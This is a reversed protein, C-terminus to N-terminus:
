PRRRAGPWDGSRILSQRGLWARGSADITRTDPNRARADDAGSDARRARSGDSRANVASYDDACCGADHGRSDHDSHDHSGRRSACRDSDANRGSGNHAGAHRGAFNDCSHAGGAPPVSEALM